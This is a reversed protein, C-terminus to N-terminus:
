GHANLRRYAELRADAAKAKAQERVIHPICGNEFDCFKCDEEDNPHVFTGNRITERLDSLVGAIAAPGPSPKAARQRHGKRSPFYYVGAVVRPDKYRAKLLEM